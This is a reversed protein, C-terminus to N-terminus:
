DYLYCLESFLLVGSPHLKKVIRCNKLNVLEEIYAAPQIEQM